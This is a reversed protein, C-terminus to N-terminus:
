RQYTISNLRGNSFLLTAKTNKDAIYQWSDVRTGGLTETSTHIPDGLILAVSDQPMNAHLLATAGVPAITPAKSAEGDHRQPGFVNVAIATLVVGVCLGSIFVAAKTM